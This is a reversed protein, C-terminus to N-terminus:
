ENETNVRYYNQIYGKIDIELNKGTAQVYKTTAEKLMFRSFKLQEGCAAVKREELQLKPTMYESEAGSGMMVGGILGGIFGTAVYVFEKKDM